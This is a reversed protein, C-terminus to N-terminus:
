ATRVTVPRGTDASTYIAELVQMVTLGDEAPSLCKKRANRICAVFHGWEDELAANKPLTV